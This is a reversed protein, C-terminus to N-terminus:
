SVAGHVITSKSKNALTIGILRIQLLSTINKMDEIFSLEFLDPELSQSRFGIAVSLAEAKDSIGRACVRRAILTSSVGKIVPDTYLGIQKGSGDITVYSISQRKLKGVEVLRSGLLVHTSSKNLRKGLQIAALIRSTHAEGLGQLQILQQYTLQTNSSFLMAAVKRAIRAVPIQASGSGIVLQLLEINTLSEVGRNRLKERPREYTIQEM